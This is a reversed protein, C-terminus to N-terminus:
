ISLQCLKFVVVLVFDIDIKRHIKPIEKRNRFISPREEFLGSFEGFDKQHTKSYIDLGM